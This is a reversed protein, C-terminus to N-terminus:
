ELMKEKFCATEEPRDTSRIIPNPIYSPVPEAFIRIDGDLVDMYRQKNVIPAAGARPSCAIVAHERKRKDFVACTGYKRAFLYTAILEAQKEFVRWHAGIPHIMGICFLHQDNPHFINRYLVPYESDVPWHLLERKMFPYSAKFGTAYVISDLNEMSGDAFEVGHPLLKCIEPKHRIDGQAYLSYVKQDLTPLVAPDSFTTKPLGLKESSPGNMRMIAESILAILRFLRNLPMSNILSGLFPPPQDQFEEFARGFVYRPACVFGHRTSHFVEKAVVAADALIDLASQGAGVVLVRKGQLHGPLHYDKSHIIEGEFVGPYVPVNAKEHRGSAIVLDRYRKKTGDQLTIQWNNEIKEVCEVNANFRIHSYMEHHEAYRVLYAHILSHHPFDPFHKPMALDSFEQSGKPSVAHTNKALPSGPRNAWLGGVCNLKELIEFAIGSKQLVKAMALGAAGAGIICVPHVDLPDKLREAELLASSEIRMRKGLLLAELIFFAGATLYADHLLPISVIELAVGVWNPHRMFRYIGDAVRPEGPLVITPLTWREGLARISAIRLFLAILTVTGAFVAQFVLFPRHLIWVEALMGIIWGTRLLINLRGVGSGDITKAGLPLLRSVNRRSLATLFLLELAIVVVCVSFILRTHM